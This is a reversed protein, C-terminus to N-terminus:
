APGGKQATLEDIRRTLTAVQQQLQEMGRQVDHSGGTQALDADLQTMAARVIGQGGADDSTGPTVREGCCSQELQKRMNEVVPVWSSAARPSLVWRRDLACVEVVDCGDVRVKALAVADDTCTPCPPNWAACSCADVTGLYAHALQVVDQESADALTNFRLASVARYAESGTEGIDTLRRLVSERGSEVSTMFQREAEGPSTGAELWGRDVPTLSALGSRDAAADLIGKIRQQEEPSRTKLEDSARLQEALKETRDILERRNAPWASQKARAEAADHALIALSRSLLQVGEDLKVGKEPTDPEVLVQAFEDATPVEPLPDGAAMRDTVTARHSVLSLATALQQADGATTADDPRCAKLADLVTPTDDPGECRLEFRYGESIRSFECEGSACDDPAYPAVPATPTEAYRVYLHYERRPQKDCPEGCDVATRRRLDRVLEIVNVEEPCSLLIDNGCCEIAYGPAVVVVGADCPHKTVGLGCVVGAGIVHRNTLKRKAVTYDIVAQLDDETLLMGGFFRPRVFGTGSLIADTGCIGGCGCSSTASAITSSGGCGCDASM